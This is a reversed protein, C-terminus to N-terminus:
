FHFHTICWIVLRDNGAHININMMAIYWVCGRWPIWLHPTKKEEKEKKEWKIYTNKRIQEIGRNRWYEHRRKWGDLGASNKARYRSITIVLCLIRLIPSQLMSMAMTNYYLREWPPKWGILQRPYDQFLVVRPIIWLLFDGESELEDARSSSRNRLLFVEATPQYLDIVFSTSSEIPIGLKYKLFQVLVKFWVNNAKGRTHSAVWHHLPTIRKWEIFYVSFPLPLPTRLAPVLRLRVLTRWPALPM